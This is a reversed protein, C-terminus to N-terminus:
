ALEEFEFMYGKSKTDWLDFNIPGSRGVETTDRSIASFSVLEDRFLQEYGVVIGCCCWPGMLILLDM